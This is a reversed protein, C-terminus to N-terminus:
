KNKSIYFLIIIIKYFEWIKTLSLIFNLVILEKYINISLIKNLDNSDVIYNSNLFYESTNTISTNIDIMQNKIPQNSSFFKNKLNNYSKFSYDLYNNNKLNLNSLNSLSIQSNFKKLNKIYYNKKNLYYFFLKLNYNNLYSYILYNSYNKIHINRNLINLKKQLKKRM